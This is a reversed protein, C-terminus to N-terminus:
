RGVGSVKAQKMIYRVRQGLYVRWLVSPVFFLDSVVTCLRRSLKAAVTLSSDYVNAESTGSIGLKLM